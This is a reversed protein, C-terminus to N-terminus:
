WKDIFQISCYLTKLLIISSRNLEEFLAARLIDAFEFDDTSHTEYEYM